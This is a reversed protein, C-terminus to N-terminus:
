SVLRWAMAEATQEDGCGHWSWRATVVETGGRALWMGARAKGRQVQFIYEGSTVKIRTQQHIVIMPTIIKVPHYTDPAPVPSTEDAWRPRNHGPAATQRPKRPGSPAAGSGTPPPISGIQFLVIGNRKAVLDIPLVCGPWSRATHSSASQSSM